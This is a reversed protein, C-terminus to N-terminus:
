FDYTLMIQPIIQPAARSQAPLTSILITFNELNSRIHCIFQAIERMVYDQICINNKM